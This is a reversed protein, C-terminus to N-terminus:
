TQTQPLPPRGPTSGAKLEQGSPAAGTAKSFIAVYVATLLAVVAWLYIISEVPDTVAIMASISTIGIRGLWVSRLYGALARQQRYHFLLSGVFYIAVVTFRFEDSIHYIRVYSEVSYYSYNTDYLREKAILHSIVTVLLLLSGTGFYRPWKPNSPIGLAARVTNQLRVGVVPIIDLLSGFFWCVLIGLRTGAFGKLFGFTAAPKPKPLDREVQTQQPGEPKWEDFMRLHELAKVQEAPDTTSRAVSALDDGLTPDSPVLSRIQARMVEAQAHAASPLTAILGEIESITERSKMWEAARRFIGTKEEESMTRPLALLHAPRQLHGAILRAIASYFYTLSDTDTAREELVALQEGFAYKPIHPLKTKDFYNLAPTDHPLWEDLVPQMAEACKGLWKDSLAKEARGDFRSLLPIVLLRQRDFGFDARSSHIGHIVRIAGELNQDNAAFVLVLYDPLQVTCVGGSDTIGTRSDILTFDYDRRWTERMDEIIEAGKGKAFFDAWSFSGLDTSYTPESDGSPLIHLNQGTSLTVTSCLNGKPCSGDNTEPGRRAAHSEILYRMLGGSVEPPKVQQHAFFRDIGPAELDWDVILVKKGSQALLVAINALAMSRGVGGKYSYFTIIRGQPEEVATLPAEPM